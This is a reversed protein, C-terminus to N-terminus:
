SIADVIVYGLETAVIKEDQYFQARINEFGKGDPDKWRDIASLQGGLLPSNWRFSYGLSPDQGMSDAGQTVHALIVNKAWVDSFSATQGENATNKISKGILIKDVEFISALIDATVVGRQVYKIRDLMDPHQILARYVAHPIIMLNAELGTTSRIAEKGTEVDSIPNSNAEDDWQATGSLTTYSGMNSGSSIQSAVRNEWALILLNMLNRSHKERLKLVNDQNALSENSTENRLAYNNCFYADSGVNFEIANGKTKPARRTDPIRFFDGKEWVYYKDSQKSVPILPFIDQVIFSKPEFGIVLNSLPVDIHVDGATLGAM